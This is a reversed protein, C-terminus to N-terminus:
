AHESLFGEVEAIQQTVERVLAEGKRILRLCVARRDEVSRRDTIWRKRVLAQVVETLTPLKVCLANAVASSGADTHRHLYCLVGAQLPTVGIPQLSRRYDGHLQLILGLQTPGTSKQAKQKANPM